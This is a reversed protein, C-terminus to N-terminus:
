KIVYHTCYNKVSITLVECALSAQATCRGRSPHLAVIFVLPRQVQGAGGKRVVRHVSLPAREMHFYGPPPTCQWGAMCASNLIRIRNSGFSKGPDLDPIIQKLDPDLCFNLLLYIILILSRKTSKYMFYTCYITLFDSYIMKSEYCQM